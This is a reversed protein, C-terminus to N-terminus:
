ISLFGIFITRFVLDKKKLKYKMSEFFFLIGGERGGSLLELCANKLPHGQHCRKFIEELVV